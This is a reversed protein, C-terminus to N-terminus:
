NISGLTGDANPQINVWIGEGLLVNDGDVLDVFNQTEPNYRIQRLNNVGSFFELVTVEDEDDGITARFFANNAPVGGEDETQDGRSQDVPGVFNWGRGVPTGAVPPPSGGGPLSPGQLLVTVDAFNGSRAWYGRGSVIANLPNSATTTWQGTTANLEAFQWPNSPNRAEYAAVFNVGSGAFVSALTGTVPSSPVSIPNWGPFMRLTFDGRENVTLTYEGDTGANGAADTAAGVIDHDGLALDTPPNYIFKKNDSTGLESLVSTTGVMAKTMTVTSNDGSFDFVVFPRRQSTEIDDEVMEPVVSDLRFTIAGSGADDENGKKSAPANGAVDSGTVVVSKTDKVSNAGDFGTGTFVARWVNGGQAVPTVAGEQTTSNDEAYIKVGPTASLSEDSTITIEMRGKTLKDPGTSSGATGTGTGGGLSVTLVPSMYDAAQVSGSSTSNGAQDTVLGVLAALPTDASPLPDGMTLFVSNKIRDEDGSPDITDTDCDPSSFVNAAIPVLNVGSDLTVQFDTNEVGTIVDNFVVQISTNRSSDESVCATDSDYFVGARAEQISPITQDIKVTHAERNGDGTGAGSTDLDADSFGINGALDLAVVQFDVVHDVLGSTVATPINGSPSHTWSVSPAGDSPSGTLTVDFTSDQPPSGLSIDPLSGVEGASIDLVPDDNDADNSNDIFLRIPLDGAVNLGAGTDSVSGSFLPLRVQTASGDAPAAIAPIPASTEVRAEKRVAVATSGGGTPSGDSYEVTVTANHQVVLDAQLKTGPTTSTATNSANSNDTTNEADLLQIQGEFLGTARGTETLTLDIKANTDLSSWAKVRISDVQSTDFDLDFSCGTVDVTNITQISGQISQDPDGPFVTGFTLNSASCSGGTVTRGIDLGNINGDGNRDVIPSQALPVLTVNTANTATDSITAAVTTVTSEDGDSEEVTVILINSGAIITNQAGEGSSTTEEVMTAFLTNGTGVFTRGTIGAPISSDTTLKSWSNTLDVSATVAAHANGQLSGVVGVVIM